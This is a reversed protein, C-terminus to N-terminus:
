WRLGAILACWSGRWHDEGACGGGWDEGVGVHFEEEEEGGGEGYTAGGGEGATGWFGVGGEEAGVVGVEDGFGGDYYGGVDVDDGGGGVCGAVDGGGEDRGLHGDDVGVEAGAADGEGM